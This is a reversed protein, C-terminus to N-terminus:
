CAATRSLPLQPRVQRPIAGFAMLTQCEVNPTNCRLAVFVRLIAKFLELRLGRPQACCWASRCTWRCVNSYSLLGV